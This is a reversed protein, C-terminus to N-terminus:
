ITRPKPLAASVHLEVQFRLVGKPGGFGADNSMTRPKHLAASVHLEEARAAVYTAARGRGSSLEEPWDESLRRGARVPEAFRLPARDTERLLSCESSRAGRLM